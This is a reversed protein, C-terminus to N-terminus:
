MEGEGGESWGADARQKAQCQGVYGGSEAAYLTIRGCPVICVIRYQFTTDKSDRNSGKTRKVEGEM